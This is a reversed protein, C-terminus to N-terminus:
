VQVPNGKKDLIGHGMSWEKDSCPTETTVSSVAVTASSKVASATGQDFAFSSSEPPTKRWNCEHNSASPAKFNSNIESLDLDSDGFLDDMDLSLINELSSSKTTTCALSSNKSLEQNRQLTVSNNAVNANEASSVAKSASKEDPKNSNSAGSNLDSLSNGIVCNVNEIVGSGQSEKLSNCLNNELHCMSESTECLTKDSSAECLEASQLSYIPSLRSTDGQLSSDLCGQDATVTKETVSSSSSDKAQSAQVTGQSCSSEETILCNEGTCNNGSLSGSSSSTKEQVGHTHEVERELNIQPPTDELVSSRNLHASAEQASSKKGISSSICSAVEGDLSRTNTIDGLKGIVAIRKEAVNNCDSNDSSPLKNKEDSYFEDLLNTLITMVEDKNTLM